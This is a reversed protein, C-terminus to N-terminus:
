VSKIFRYGGIRYNRLCKVANDNGPNLELSKQLKLIAEEKNGDMMYAEGISDYVNSSNPYAQVNLKFIEIADKTKDGRFFSIDLLM